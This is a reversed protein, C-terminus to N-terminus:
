HNTPRAGRRKRRTCSGSGDGSGRVELTIPKVVTVPGGPTPDRAGRSTVAAREHIIPLLRLLSARQRLLPPPFKGMTQYPPAVLSDINAHAVLNSVAKIDKGNVSAFANHDVSGLFAFAEGSIV